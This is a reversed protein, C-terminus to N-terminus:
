ATGSQKAQAKLLVLRLIYLFISVGTGVVLGVAGLLLFAVNMRTMGFALLATGLAAITFSITEGIHVLKM